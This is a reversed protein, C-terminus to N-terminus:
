AAPEGRCHLRRGCAAGAAVREHGHGVGVAAVGALMRAAVRRELTCGVGAVAFGGSCCGLGDVDDEGHQAAVTELRVVRDVRGPDDAGGEVSEDREFGTAAETERKVDVLGEGPERVQEVLSQPGCPGAPHCSSWPTDLAATAGPRATTGATWRESSADLRVSSARFSPATRAERPGPDKDHM